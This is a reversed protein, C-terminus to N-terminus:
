LFKFNKENFGIQKAFYSKLKGIINAPRKKNWKLIKDNIKTVVIIQYHVKDTKSILLNENTQDGKEFNTEFERSLSSVVLVTISLQLSDIIV